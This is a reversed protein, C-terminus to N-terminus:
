FLFACFFHPDRSAPVLARVKPQESYKSQSAETSRLGAAKVQGIPGFSVQVKAHRVFRYHCLECFESQFVACYKRTLCKSCVAFDVTLHAEVGRHGSILLDKGIRAITALNDRHGIRLNAVVAHVGLIDFTVLRMQGAENNALLAPARAIKAGVALQVLIKDAISDDADLADVRPCQDAANTNAARHLADEGRDIEVIGTQHGLGIRTGAQDAAIQHALDNGLLPDLPALGQARPSSQLRSLGRRPRGIPRVDHGQIVSHLPVDGPMQEVHAAAHRNQGARGSGLIHQGALRVPHKEGVTGAIRLRQTVCLLRNAIEHAYFGIKPM